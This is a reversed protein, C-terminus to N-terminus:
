PTGSPNSSSLAPPPLANAPLGGGLAQDLDIAASLRRARLAALQQDLQLLPRQATLVDLQTAMGAKRRQMALEFATYASDRATAADALQRDLNHASQAADAVERIATLLTQNYNAVAFDYDAQSSALQNRLRGGDFIPLSLAPGGYVLAANSGFLDRLNGAALGLMASLNISPYFAARSADIGNSAAEVRWRAAVIDARRALLDSPLVEPVTLAPLSLHPRGLQLAADPGDGALAALANRLAHIQQQAAQAQQNAAAQNSANQELGIRNDIGAKVRQQSLDLLQGSRAAEAKAVDQNDYAQALAIWTRAINAALLVRAAQADIEQARATGVAAQWKAREGGWLDPTWAFNLSLIQSINLDGGLPAPALTEPLQLATSQAKASLGPKRAAEALGAQAIAKRTRADAIALSPSQALAHAILADLQPDGLAKWWHARPWAVPTLPVETAQLSRHMALSAADTLHEQPALGRPSACAAVFMLAAVAAVTKARLFCGFSCPTLSVPM